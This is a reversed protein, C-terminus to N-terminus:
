GLDCDRDWVRRRERRFLAVMRMRVLKGRRVRVM